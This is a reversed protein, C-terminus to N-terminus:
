DRSDSLPRVTEGQREVRGAQELTTLRRDLEDESLELEARLADLSTPGDMRNWVELADYHAEVLDGLSDRIPLTVGYQEELEDLAEAVYTACRLEGLSAVQVRLEAEVVDFDLGTQALVRMDDVDDARGAVGKFLFVDELALLNVQMGQEEFFVESRDKMSESLVLKDAVRRQFVDIRCGDENEVYSRAGLQRYATGLDTVERYGVESLVGWLQGHADASTVVLDVDKTSEKLDRLSMAGGGLLYVSLTGDLREAIREFEAEVYDADFRPRSTM